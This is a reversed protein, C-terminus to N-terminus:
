ETSTMLINTWESYHGLSTNGGKVVKYALLFSTKDKKQLPVNYDESELSPNKVHRLIFLLLYHAKFVGKNKRSLLISDAQM